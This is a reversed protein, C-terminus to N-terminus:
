TDKSGCDDKLPMELPMECIYYHQELCSSDALGGELGTYVNGCHVTTSNTPYGPYWRTFGSDSLPDDLVTTWDDIQYLNHFGIFALGPEYFQNYVLSVAVMEEASNIIALHTGDGVCDMRAEYWTLPSSSVKYRGIGAVEQYDQYKFDQAMALPLLLAILQHVAMNGDVKFDQTRIITQGLTRGSQRVRSLVLSQAVTHGFQQALSLAVAHGFQRALSLVLSQAIAHGFQHTISLVLSQAIVHGFQHALSLAVAHGFQRALSLVLSQAIAHGFQRAPSLAVAHGFQPTLSLVLSQAIVHVFQHALSLVLSQAIAHGFQHAISSAVSRNRAWVPSRALSRSRPWVPSCALSRAVSHSPPWVPSRALSRAISHSPPWVTIACFNMFPNGM